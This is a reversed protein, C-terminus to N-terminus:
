LISEGAVRRAYGRAHEHRMIQLMKQLRHAYTHQAAIRRQASAILTDAAGPRRSYYTALAAAEEPSDYVLVEQGPEFYHELEPQRDTLVLSGCAPVDFVRQNVTSPMQLNTANFNVVSARYILALGPGYDCGPNAHATPLLKQWGLDGFVHLASQPLAQLYHLRYQKSAIFNACALVLTHRDPPPGALCSQTVMTDGKSLLVGVLDHAATRDAEDLTSLWKQELGILSSGVFSISYPKHQHSSLSPFFTTPDTALPLHHIRQAGLQTMVSVFSRDWTFLTVHKSPLAVYGQAAFLPNDVFWIATPLALADIIEGMSNGSDFGLYNITLLMDPRYTVVAHLIQQMTAALQGPAAADGAAIPVVKHGLQGLARGCEAQLHYGSHVLLICLKDGVFKPFRRLSRLPSHAPVLNSVNM